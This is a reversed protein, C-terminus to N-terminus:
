TASTVPRRRRAAAGVLGFGAILMAWSAPEPISAIVSVNDVAQNFFFQNDVEGFRIQYSNGPLLLSTLNSITDDWAAPRDADAGLFLTFVIDAAATSFPDASATLIDVRAHQNAPGTHDLGIPDIITNTNWDTPAQDFSVVVKYANTPITFSQTLSYSGPGTQDTTYVWNQGNSHFSIPNGSIPTTGGVNPIVVGNGGSGARVSLTWGTLDGTEFGGNTILQTAAAPGAVLGAVTCLLLAVRM